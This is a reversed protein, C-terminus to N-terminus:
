DLLHAFHKDITLVSVQNRKAISAILADILPLTIGQSRLNQLTHGAKLWDPETCTLIPIREFLLNLQSFEKVAQQGSRVGQLLETIVPGCLRAQETNILEAVQDGLQGNQNKLFDIWACTDILVPKLGRKLM